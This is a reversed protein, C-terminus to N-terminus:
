HDSSEAKATIIKPNLWDDAQDFLLEYLSRRNVLFRSTLTLGNKLKGEYGSKLRLFDQNLKCKIKFYVAEKEQYPHNSIDTILGTALGWQNYNYADVQFTVPQGTQLYGIDNPSVYCEVILSDTPSLIAIAQNQFIFSGTKIGSFNSVSGNVPALVVYFRQEFRLQDRSDALSQLETKYQVIQQNWGAKKQSIYFDREKILQNLELEKKEFEAAAIVEKEFLLKTRRFDKGTTEIRLQYEMLKQNYESYSSKMLGSQLVKNQSGALNELDHLYGSFLTIRANLMQIQDNIKEPVLCILTDGATVKMNERIRIEQVQGTVPAQLSTPEGQSRIMGRSQITIDIKVIPLAALSAIVTFILLLYIIKTHESFRSYHSELSFQIIEKPFITQKM